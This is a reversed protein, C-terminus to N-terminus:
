QLTVQLVQVPREGPIQIERPVSAAVHESPLAVACTAEPLVDPYVTIESGSYLTLREQQPRKRWFQWKPIDTGDPPAPLTLAGGRESLAAAVEVSVFGMLYIHGDGDHHIELVHSSSQPSVEAGAWSLPMEPGSQLDGIEAFGFSGPPLSGATEVPTLARAERLKTRAESAEPRTEAFVPTICEGAGTPPIRESARVLSALMSDAQSVRAASDAAAATSDAASGLATQGANHSQLQAMLIGGVLLVGAIVGFLIPPREYWPAKKAARKTVKVKKLAEELPELRGVM